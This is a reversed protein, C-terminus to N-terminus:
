GAGWVGQVGVLLASVLIIWLFGTVRQVGAIRPNSRGKM